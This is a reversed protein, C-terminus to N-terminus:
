LKRLSKGLLKSKQGFARFPYVSNICNKFFLSFYQMIAIKHLFRICIKSLERDNPAGGGSEMRPRGRFHEWGMASIRTAGSIVEINLYDKVTKKTPLIQYYDEKLISKRYKYLSCIICWM